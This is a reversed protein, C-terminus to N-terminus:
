RKKGFRAFLADGGFVHGWRAFLVVGWLAVCIWAWAGFVLVFGDRAIVFSGLMFLMLMSAAARPMFGLAFCVGSFFLVPQWFGLSWLTKWVEVFPMVQAVAPTPVQELYAHMRVCADTLVVAFLVRLAVLAIGLQGRTSPRLFHEVPYQIRMFNM